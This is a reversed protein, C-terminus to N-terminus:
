EVRRVLAVEVLREELGARTREERRLAPHDGLMEVLARERLCYAGQLPHAFHFYSVVAQGEVFPLRIASLARPSRSPRARARGRARARAFPPRFDTATYGPENSGIVFPCWSMMARPSDTNSSTMMAIRTFMSLFGRNVTSSRTSSM